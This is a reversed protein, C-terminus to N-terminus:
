YHPPPRDDQPSGDGGAEVQGIRDRLQRLQLTLRDIVRAQETLVDSM